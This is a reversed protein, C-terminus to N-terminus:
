LLGILFTAAYQTFFPCAEAPAPDMQVLTDAYSIWEGLNLDRDTQDLFETLGQMMDSQEETEDMLTTPCVSSGPSAPVPLDLPELLHSFDTPGEEELPKPWCVVDQLGYNNLYVSEDVDMEFDEDLVQSDYCQALQGLSTVPEPVHSSDANEWESSSSAISVLSSPSSSSSEALPLDSKSKKPRRFRAAFHGKTRDEFLM